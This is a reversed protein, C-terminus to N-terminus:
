SQRSRQIRSAEFYGRDVVEKFARRTTSESWGLNRHAARVSITDESDRSLLWVLLRLGRNSLASDRIAGAPM